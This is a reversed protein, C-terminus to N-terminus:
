ELAKLFVDVFDFGAKLAADADLAEVVDGLAVNDLREMFHPHLRESAFLRAFTRTGPTVRIAYNTNRLEYQYNIRVCLQPWRGRKGQTKCKVAVRWRQSGCFMSAM